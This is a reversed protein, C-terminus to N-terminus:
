VIDEEGLHIHILDWLIHLLMVHTEQIRHISYSRVVFNWEAVASLRGGDKGNFAITIVGKEKVQQLAHVLNPSMGSTSIALAMDGENALQVLPLAYAASFDLDNAIASLLASSSTLSICPLARRKEFIPHMFEVSVHEADCSSGGNGMVFLRHGNEFANAMVMALQSLRDANQEFFKLATESSEKVKRIIARRNDTLTPSELPVAMSRKDCNKATNYMKAVKNDDILM